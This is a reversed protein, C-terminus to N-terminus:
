GGAYLQWRHGSRGRDARQHLVPVRAGYRFTGGREGRKGDLWQCAVPVPDACAFLGM